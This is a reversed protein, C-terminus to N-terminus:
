INKHQRLKIYSIVSITGAIFAIIIILNNIGTYPMSDKSKTNDKVNNEDKTNDKTNNETNEKNNTTGQVVTIKQEVTKTVSGETYSIVIEKDSIKLVGNPTYTYDTVEKSSGDSYKATIKMGTKDFKEGASYTTRTPTNTIEIKTLVKGEPTPKVNTQKDVVSIEVEKTGVDKLSNEEADSDIKIDSVTVKANTGIEANEKVKFTLKFIDASTVKDRSNGIIALEISTDSSEGANYWNDDTVKSELLELKDKDYTITGMLGNIGEGCTASITITFQEGPVVQQNDTNLTVTTEDAASISLAIGLIMLIIIFTVVVKRKM